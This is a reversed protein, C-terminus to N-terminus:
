RRCLSKPEGDLKRSVFWNKEWINSSCQDALKALMPKPIGFQDSVCSNGLFTKAEELTPIITNPYKKYGKDLYNKLLSNYQLAAQEAATRHVKGSTIILEPQNIEKGGFQSSVRHITYISNSIDADIWLKIVQVKNKSNLILLYDSRTIM